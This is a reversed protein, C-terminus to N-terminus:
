VSLCFPTTSQVSCQRIPYRPFRCYPFGIPEGSHGVRCRSFLFNPRRLDRIVDIVLTTARGTAIESHGDGALHRRWRGAAAPQRVSEAPLDTSYWFASNGHTDQMCETGPAFWGDSPERASAHACELDRLQLVLQRPPFDYLDWAAILLKAIRRHEAQCHARFEDWTPTESGDRVGRELEVLQALVQPAPTAAELLRHFRESQDRAHSSEGRLVWRECRLLGQEAASYSVDHPMSRLGDPWGDLVRGLGDPASSRRAFWSLGGLNRCIRARLKRGSVKWVRFRTALLGVVVAVLGVRGQRALCAGRCADDADVSSSARLTSRRRESRSLGQERIEGSRPKARLKARSIQIGGWRARANRAYPEDFRAARSRASLELGFSVGLSSAVGDLVHEFTDTVDPGAARLVGLVVIAAVILHLVVVHLSDFKM